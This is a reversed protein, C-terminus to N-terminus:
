SELDASLISSSIRYCNVKGLNSVRASCDYSRGKDARLFGKALLLRLVSLHEYGACVETRFPEVFFFYDWGADPDKPDVSRRVGARNLTRPAHPDGERSSDSFRGDGHTEIFARVQRLMKLHEGNGIGGRSSVWAEFCAHAAATAEGESWGTIGAETALEGAAAVLAFRHGVRQVQGSASSPIWRLAIQKVSARLRERVSRQDRVIWDLFARGATGHLADCVKGLHHALAAGSEFGHLENFIGMGAGADAPIDAMRLEQGTRARKNGEAMHDALGIEGASCFLVKWQLRNRLQGGRTSRAKSTENALMYACEGATRPDVQALEDLILLSDCHQAAISELANDTARWRQMYSASGYLSAAVRLATTKGCSSDGRYHFGGSDIGALRLLPGAFGCSVAFALRSNGICLKAIRDRWDSVEGRHRLTVEAAGDTQYIIEEESNGLTETPLVYASGHWGLRDTCRAHADPAQAQIYQSLLSRGKATGCIRLGYGLLTARLETGEGSLMRAPMVWQRVLGSPDPFRLLYGWGQGDGDRTLAPVDLKSCVWIPTPERDDPRQEMFWVGRDDVKFRRQSWDSGPTESRARRPTRSFKPKPPDVTVHGLANAPGPAAPQGNAEISEVSTM